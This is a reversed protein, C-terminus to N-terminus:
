NLNVEFGRGSDKNDKQSCFHKEWSSIGQITLIEMRTREKGEGTVSSPREAQFPVFYDLRQGAAELM